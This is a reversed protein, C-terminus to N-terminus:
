ADTIVLFSLLIMVLFILFRSYEIQARKVQTTGLWTFEAQAVFIGNAGLLLEYAPDLFRYRLIFAEVELRKEVTM